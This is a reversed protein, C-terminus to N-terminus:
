GPKALASRFAAVIEERAAAVSPTLGRGLSIEGPEVGVFLIRAGPREERWIRVFLPLPVSHTSHCFTDLRSPAVFGWPPRPLGAAADVLVVVDAAHRRVLHAANEIAIGVPVSLVEPGLGLDAVDRAVLAGVADDALMENGLGLVLIRDGRRRARGLVQRLRRAPDAAARPRPTM